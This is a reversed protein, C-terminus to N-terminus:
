KPWFRDTAWYFVAWVAGIFGVMIVGVYVLTDRITGWKNLIDTQRDNDAQLREFGVEIKHDVGQMRQESRLMYERVTNEYTMVRQETVAANVKLQTVVETLADLKSRFDDM